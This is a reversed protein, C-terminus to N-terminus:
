KNRYNQKFKISLPLWIYSIAGNTEKRNEIGITAGIAKAANLALFLGLGAGTKNGSRIFPAFLDKNEDIGCGEDIVEVIFKDKLIYSKITITSGKPSFKIANQVFNQIIHLFLTQQIMVELKEPKLDTLIEIDELHALIKFGNKLENIYAVIDIKKPDEFQTSEQRGIELISSIMANMRNIAENNNKLAEIYKESERQRILTVENKTKMVALPTKLEHAVGIFLEKQYQIFTQIRSILNNIGKILPIFEKPVDQTNLEKLYGENLCGIKYALTKIPFLLMRSLFLAYFLVLFISTANVVIIDILIQKIIKHHQTTEKRILITFNKEKIPYILTLYNTDNKVVDKFFYKQVSSNLDVIKLQTTYNKFYGNNSIINQIKEKPLNELSKAEQLINQVVTEFITIKIYHYLM